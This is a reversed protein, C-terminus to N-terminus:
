IKKENALRIALRKLLFESWQCIVSLSSSNGAGGVTSSKATAGLWGEGGGLSDLLSIM